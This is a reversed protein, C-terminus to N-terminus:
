FSELVFCSNLFSMLCGVHPTHVMVSSLLWQLVLCLDKRRSFSRGLEWSGVEFVVCRHGQRLM